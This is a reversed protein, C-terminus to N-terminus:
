KKLSPQDPDGRFSGAVGELLALVAVSGSVTLAIGWGFSLVNFPREAAAMAALTILFSGVVKYALRKLYTGM